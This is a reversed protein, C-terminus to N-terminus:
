GLSRGAWVIYKTSDSEGSLASPWNPGRFGEAGGGGMRVGAAFGQTIGRQPLDRDRPPPRGKPLIMASLLALLQREAHVRPAVALALAGPKPAARPASFPKNHKKEHLDFPGKIIVPLTGDQKSWSKVCPCSSTLFPIKVIHLRQTNLLITLFVSICLTQTSM